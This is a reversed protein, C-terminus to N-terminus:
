LGLRAKLICHRRTLVERLTLIMSRSTLRDVRMVIGMGGVGWKGRDRQLADMGELLDRHVEDCVEGEGMAKIRNQDHYIMTKRLPYNEVRAVFSGGCGVNSVDKIASM